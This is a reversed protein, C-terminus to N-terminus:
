KLTTHIMNAMARKMVAAEEFDKNASICHIQAIHVGYPMIAIVRVDASIAHTRRHFNVSNRNTTYMVQM